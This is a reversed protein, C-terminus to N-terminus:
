INPLIHLQEKMQSQVNNRGFKKADYLLDDALQLAADFDKYDSFYSLGISSTIDIQKGAYEVSNNAINERIREAVCLATKEEIDQLLVLFEEGGLRAVHDYRRITQLMIQSIHQLVLDGVHHGHHDNIQKFFDLDCLLIAHLAQPQLALSNLQDELGRRNFVGTLPDLNREKRLTVLSDQMACGVFLGLFMIDFVIILFQTSAWFTEYASVMNQIDFIHSLMFARLVGIIVTIVLLNVLWRDILLMHRKNFLQDANHTYILALSLGIITIRIDQQNNMVSYYFLAITSMLLIAFVQKWHTSINLRQHIAHVHFACGCLFILVIAWIYQLLLAEILISHLLISTGTCLLAIAYSRLYAPIPRYHQYIFVSLGLGLLLLPILIMFLNLHPSLMSLMPLSIAIALYSRIIGNMIQQKIFRM